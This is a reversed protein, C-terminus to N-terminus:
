NGALLMHKDAAFLWIAAEGGGLPGPENIGILSSGRSSPYAKAFVVMLEKAPPFLPQSM